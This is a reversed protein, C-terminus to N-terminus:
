KLRKEKIIKAQSGIRYLYYSTGMFVVSGLLVAMSHFGDPAIKFLTTSQYAAFPAALLIGVLAEGAILGSCFLVGRRRAYAEAKEFNVNLTARQNNLRRDAFFSVLGGFALPVTVEQPMYIGLAVALVPFSWKSNKRKLYTDLAIIVVGLGFGIFIMTWDLSRAFVGQAIAAMIAAKPAALAQTPEMGERPFSNGIGYAEYLVQLIPTIAVAGVIVGLMLMVQQKWPTAGVIQGAKLDQLNDGSIAAANAMVAGIIITIGAAALAKATETHFNIESSLLFLLIFSISLVAMITVGSLPNNSSGVIGTMYGAIGAGIFGVFLTFLTVTSVTLWYLMPTLGLSSEGLIHHFIFFLPVVLIAIGALVYTVPIDFDTRKIKHSEKLKLHKLMAISSIVGNKIPGFLHIITWIGGVIMAGVGIMRLKSNWITVAAEYTSSAEPVGFLYGYLPVGLCWVGINGLLMSVGVEIGVIYGAAIMVLSLGTGFGFVTRLGTTWYQVSEELVMLGTQAFKTVAALAGGLILDKAGEKSSAEGAKLVEGTAIGEPFKLPNEIIFARRLPISFLVGLLGGVIVISTTLFFPFNAWYNMMILAPLTFVVAAAIVEGASTATQVINNELINSNKFFKLIAMSIVAAPITATVTMGLKLGLYANSGAMIIALFMSLITAKLTIEPLSQSAPIHPIIEEMLNQQETGSRNSFVRKM